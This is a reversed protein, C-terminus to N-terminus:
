GNCIFSSLTYEVNSEQVFKKTQNKTNYKELEIHEIKEVMTYASEYAPMHGATPITTQVGPQVALSILQINLATELKAITELTLNQGGKVIKNVQQPSIDMLQALRKQSIKKEDLAHLVALAIQASNALWKKNQARQEAKKLWGSPKGSMAPALKEMLTKM